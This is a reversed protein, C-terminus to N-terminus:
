EEISHSLRPRTLDMVEFSKPEICLYTEFYLLSTRCLKFVAEGLLQLNFTGLLGLYIPRPAGPRWTRRTYM